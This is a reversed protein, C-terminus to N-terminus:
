FRKIFQTIFFNLLYIDVICILIVYEYNDDEVMWESRIELSLADKEPTSIEKPEVGGVQKFHTLSPLGFSSEERGRFIIKSLLSFAELKSLVYLSSFSFPLLKRV